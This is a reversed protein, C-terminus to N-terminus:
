DVHMEVEEDSRDRKAFFSFVRAKLSGNLEVM